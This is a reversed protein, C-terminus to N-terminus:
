GELLKWLDFHLDFHTSGLAPEPLAAAAAVDGDAAAVVAAAAGVGILKPGFDMPVTVATVFEEEVQKM